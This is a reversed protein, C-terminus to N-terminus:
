PGSVRRLWEGDEPGAVAVIGATLWILAPLVHERLDDQVDTLDPGAGPASSVIELAAAARAAAASAWAGLNSRVWAVAEAGGHGAAASARGGTAALVLATGLFSEYVDDRAYGHGTFEEVARFVAYATNARRTRIVVGVLDILASRVQDVADDSGVGVGPVTIGGSGPEAM